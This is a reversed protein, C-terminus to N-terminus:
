TFVGDIGLNLDGNSVDTILTASLAVGDGDTDNALVGTAVDTVLNTNVVTTYSDDNAVPTFNGGTGQQVLVQLDAVSMARQLIFVDDIKGDFHFRGGPLSGIAVNINNDRAVAGTLPTSAVEVGDLYLKVTEQDYILATHHWVDTSLDGIPALLDTTEDGVNVRGQLKQSNGSAYTSLMFITGFSNAANAKSIIRPDRGAGPFSDAKIWAALTLGTGAVDLGGLSVSGNGNFDLSRSSGDGTEPDYQAGSIIGDNGFASSDTAILPTDDDEFSFHAILDADGDFDTVAIEVSVSGSNLTGDTVFYSFSDTGLFGPAPTYTFSGDSSLILTGNTVDEDLIASMVDGNADADNLLVGAETNVSLQNNVIVQYNDARAFPAEPGTAAPGRLVIMPGPKEIFEGFGIRHKYTLLNAGGNLYSMPVDRVSLQWDDEDDEFSPIDPNNNISLLPREWYSAIVTADTFRSLDEPLTITRDLTTPFLGDHFLIGDQFNPITFTQVNTTERKLEFEATVGGAADRVDRATDLVRVKFKVGSQAPIHSVDWDISYNGAEEVRVTGIHDITGGTPNSSVGGPHWNNRTRNHWDRTFGDNDEDYGDYFAHFELFRADRTAFATLTIKDNDIALVNSSSLDTM